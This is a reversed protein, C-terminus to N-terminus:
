SINRHNPALRLLDPELALSALHTHHGYFLPHLLDFGRDLLLEPDCGFFDLLATAFRIDLRRHRAEKILQVKVDLLIVIDTLVNLNLLLGDQQKELIFSVPKILHIGDNMAIALGSEEELVEEEDDLGVEGLAPNQKGRAFRHIIVVLLFNEPLEGDCHAHLHVLKVLQKVNLVSPSDPKEEPREM